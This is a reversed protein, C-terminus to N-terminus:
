TKLDKDTLPAIKPAAKDKSADKDAKPGFVTERKHAM